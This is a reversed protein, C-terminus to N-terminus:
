KKWLTSARKREGTRVTQSAAVSDKMRASGDSPEETANAAAVEIAVIPSYMEYPRGMRIPSMQCLFKTLM